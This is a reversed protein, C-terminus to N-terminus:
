LGDVHSQCNLKGRWDSAGVLLGNSQLNQGRKKGKVSLVNSIDVTRPENVVFPDLTNVFLLELGDIGGGLLNDGGDALGCLLIDIESDGGSPFSELSCPALDGRTVSANHQDLKGVEDLLVKIQKSGNFRQIVALGGHQGSTINTGDNRGETIVTPPRVLNLALGNIYGRIHEM